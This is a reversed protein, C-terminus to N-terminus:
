LSADEQSVAEKLEVLDDSSIGTTSMIKKDDTGFRIMMKVAEPNYKKKEVKKDKGKDDGAKGGKSEQKRMAAERARDFAERLSKARMKKVEERKKREETLRQQRRAFEAKEAEAKKQRQVELEQRKEDRIRQEEKIAEELEQRKQSEMEMKSELEKRKDELGKNIANIEDETMSLEITAVEVDREEKSMGDESQEADTKTKDKLKKLLESRANLSSKAVQALRKEREKRAKMDVKVGSELSSEREKEKDYDEQTISGLHQDFTTKLQSRVKDYFKIYNKNFDFFAKLLSKADVKKSGNELDLAKGLTEVNKYLKEDRSLAIVSGLVIGNENSYNYEFLAGGVIVAKRIHAALMSLLVEGHEELSIQPQQKGVAVPPTPIAGSKGLAGALPNPAGLGGGMLSGLPNNNVEFKRFNNTIDPTDETDDQQDFKTDGTLIFKESSSMRNFTKKGHYDFYVGALDELADWIQCDSETKETDIQQDSIKLCRLLKDSEEPYKKSFSDWKLSGKVISLLKEKEADTGAIFGSEFTRSSHNDVITRMQAQLFLQGLSAEKEILEKVNTNKYLHCLREEYNEERVEKLLNEHTEIYSKEELLNKLSSLVELYLQKLTKEPDGYEVAGEYGLLESEIVMVRPASISDRLQHLTEIVEGYSGTYPVEKPITLLLIDFSKEKLKAILSEVGCSDISEQRVGKNLLFEGEREFPAGVVLVSLSRWSGYAGLTAQVAQEIM